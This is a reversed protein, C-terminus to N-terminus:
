SLLFASYSAAALLGIQSLFTRLVQLKGLLQICLYFKHEGIVVELDLWVLAFNVLAFLCSLLLYLKCCIFFLYSM